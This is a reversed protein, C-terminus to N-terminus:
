AADRRGCGRDGCRDCLDHDDALQQSHLGKCGHLGVEAEARPKNQIKGRIVNVYFWKQRRQALAVGAVVPQQMM